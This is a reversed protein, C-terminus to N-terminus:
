LDLYTQKSDDWPEQEDPETSVGRINCDNVLVHLAGALTRYRDDPEAYRDGPLGAALYDARAVHRHPSGNPCKARPPLPNSHPHSPGNYRCLTLKRGPLELILGASFKARVVRLQRTYLRYIREPEGVAALSWQREQHGQVDKTRGARTVVKPEAFIAKLVEPTFDEFAPLPWPTPLM